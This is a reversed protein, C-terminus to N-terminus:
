PPSLLTGRPLGLRKEPSSPPAVHDVLYLVCTAFWMSMGLMKRSNLMTRWHGWQDVTIGPTLFEPYNEKGRLKQHMVQEKSNYKDTFSRSRGTVAVTAEKLKLDEHVQCCM